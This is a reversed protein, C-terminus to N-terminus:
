GLLKHAPSTPPKLNAGPCGETLDDSKYKFWECRDECYHETGPVLAPALRGTQNVLRQVADVRNIAEVALSENFPEHWLIGEELEGAAPLFFVGVDVVPVGGRQWGRGYSHSQIVYKPEPVKKSKVEKMTTPGVIKWDIVMQYIVSYLDCSGYIDYGDGARVTGVNVRNETLWLHHRTLEFAMSNAESFTEDLGKHVFTGVTARWKDRKRPIPPTGALKYAMWRTCPHGIESPGIERQLSRPNNEIKHRIVNLLVDRIPHDNIM